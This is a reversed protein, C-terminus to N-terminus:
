LTTTNIYHIACRACAQRKTGPIDAVTHEPLFSWDEIAQLFASRHGEAMSEARGSEAWLDFEAAAKKEDPQIM